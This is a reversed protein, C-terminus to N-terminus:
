GCCILDWNLPLERYEVGARTMHRAAWRDVLSYHRIAWEESTGQQHWTDDSVPLGYLDNM